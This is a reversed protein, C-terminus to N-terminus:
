LKFWVQVLQEKLWSMRFGSFVLSTNEERLPESVPRHEWVPHSLLFFQSGLSKLMLHLERVLSGHSSTYGSKKKKLDILQKNQRMLQTSKQASFITHCVLCSMTYSEGSDCTFPSVSIFIFSSKQWCPGDWPWMCGFCPIMAPPRSGSWIPCNVGRSIQASVQLFLTWM